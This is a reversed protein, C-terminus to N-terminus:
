ATSMSGRFLGFEDHLLCRLAQPLRMAHQEGAVQPHPAWHGSENRYYLMWRRGSERPELRARPLRVFSPHRAPHPQVTYFEVSDGQWDFQLRGGGPWILRRGESHIFEVLLRRNRRNVFDTASAPKRKFDPTDTM